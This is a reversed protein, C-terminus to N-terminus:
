VNSSSSVQNTQAVSNDLVQGERKTSARRGTKGLIQHEGTLLAGQQADDAPLAERWWGPGRHNADNPGAECDSTPTISRNMRRREMQPLRGTLTITSSPDCRAMPEHALRWRV